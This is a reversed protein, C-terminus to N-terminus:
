ESWEVAAPSKLIPHEVQCTYVEGSQPVTELMVLTQFTWDGNQLLGTSLVGAEEEHGNWFWRIEIHGPYFGSMSCVLLNHDMLHGEKNPSGGVRHEGRRQVTFSEGIRHNDRYFRDVAARKQALCDKQSNWYEADAQGLKTVVKYQGLDSDFRVYEEQNYFYRVLYQVREMGNSFHSEHKVQELFRADSQAKELNHQMVTSHYQM